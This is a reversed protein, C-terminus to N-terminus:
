KKLLKTLLEMNRQYLESDALHFGATMMPNEPIEASYEKQLIIGLEFVESSMLGPILTELMQVLMGMNGGEPILDMLMPLLDFLAGVEDKDVYLIMDGPHKIYYGEYLEEPKIETVINFRIGTTAWRNLLKYIELYDPDSDARTEAGRNTQILRIIMDINPTVYLSNDKVCYTILNLPSLSYDSEPRIPLPMIYGLFGDVQPMSAYRATINGDPYFYIDRLVSGLINGGVAEVLGALSSVSANDSHFHVGYKVNTYTIGTEPDTGQTQELGYPVTYWRNQATIAHSPLVVDSVKVELKGQEIKGTYDFKVGSVGVTNGSFTYGNEAVNLPIDRILTEREGPLIDLFTIDATRMDSTKFYISKGILENGSYSLSLNASEGDALRNSYNATLKDAEKCEDEDCSTWLGLLCLVYFLKLLCNKNM